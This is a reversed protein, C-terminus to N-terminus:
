RFTGYRFRQVLRRGPAFLKAQDGRNRWIESRSNWYYNSGRSRGRGSRVRVTRGAALSGRSFTYFRNRGNAVSWRKLRVTVRGTNRISV